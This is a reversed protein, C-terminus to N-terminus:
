TAQNEVQAIIDELLGSRIHLTSQQPLLRLLSLVEERSKQRRRIARILVGITGHVTYGLSVAALRAAADDTLFIAEPYTEMLSLAAQEGYDLSLSKVLSQFTVQSSIAVSAKRLTVDPNKLAAPQHRAVEQWVPDPVWVADFDDLLPLCNLEDLHILPGADCIVQISSRNMVM